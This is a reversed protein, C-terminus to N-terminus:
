PAPRQPFRRPLGAEPAYRLLVGVAELTLWGSPSGSRGLGEALMAALPPERRASWRGSGDQGDQVTAIARLWRPSWPAGARAAVWLLELVDTREFRPVSWRDSVRGGAVLRDVSRLARTRLPDRRAGDPGTLAALVAAATAGCEEGTTDVWGGAPSAPAAEDLWALAEQVALHRAWGLACLAQAARATRWADPREGSPGLAVPGDGRGDGLWAGVAAQLRPDDPDAGLQAAAAIREPPGDFSAGGGPVPDWRGDPQLPALLTAVPEAANAGGRARVVAPSTPPRGVLEVLVRATLHPRDTDLLWPLPDAALAEWGSSVSAPTM